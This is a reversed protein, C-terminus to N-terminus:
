AVARQEHVGEQMEEIIKASFAELDGPNRSTILGEDVVVERDVWHAGANKVDTAARNELHLHIPNQKMLGLVVLASSSYAHCGTVSKM